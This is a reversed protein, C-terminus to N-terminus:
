EGGNMCRKLTILIEILSLNVIMIEDDKVDNPALGTLVM